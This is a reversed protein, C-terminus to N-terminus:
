TCMVHEEDGPIDEVGEMCGGIDKVVVGVVESNRDEVNDVADSIVEGGSYYMSEDALRRFLRGVGAWLVEVQFDVIEQFNTFEVQFYLFWLFVNELFGICIGQVLADGPAIFM